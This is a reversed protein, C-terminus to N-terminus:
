GLGLGVWVGVGSGRRMMDVIGVVLLGLGRRDNAVDEEVEKLLV